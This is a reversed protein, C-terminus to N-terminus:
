PFMPYSPRLKQEVVRGAEILVPGKFSMGDRKAEVVMRFRGDEDETTTVVSVETFGREGLVRRLLECRSEERDNRFSATFNRLRADLSEIVEGLVPKLQEELNVSAPDTELALSLKEEMSELRDLMASREVLTTLQAELKAADPLREGLGELEDLGAKLAALESVQQTLAALAPIREGLVRLNSVEAKLEGLAQQVGDEREEPPPAVLNEELRRIRRFLGIILLLALTVELLAVALIIDLYEM